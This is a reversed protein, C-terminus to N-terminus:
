YLDKIQDQSIAGRRVHLADLGGYANPVACWSVFTHQPRHIGIADADLTFEVPPKGRARREAMEVDEQRKFTRRRGTCTATSDLCERYSLPEALRWNALQRVTKGAHM